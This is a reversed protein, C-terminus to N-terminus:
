YEEDQNHGEQHKEHEQRYQWSSAVGVVVVLINDVIISRLM